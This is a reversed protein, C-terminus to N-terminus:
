QFQTVALWAAVSLLSFSLAGVRSLTAVALLSLEPTEHMNM